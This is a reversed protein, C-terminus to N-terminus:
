FFKFNFGSEYGKILKEATFCPNSISLSKVAIEYLGQKKLYTAAGLLEEKNFDEGNYIKAQNKLFIQLYKQNLEEREKLIEDLVEKSPLVGNHALYKITESKRGDIGLKNLQLNYYTEKEKDFTGVRVYELYEKIVPELNAETIELEEKFLNYAEDEWGNKHIEREAEYFIHNTDTLEGSGQLHRRLSRAYISLARLKDM